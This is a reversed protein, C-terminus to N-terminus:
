HSRGLISHGGWDTDCYRCVSIIRVVPTIVVAKFLLLADFEGEFHRGIRWYVGDVKDELVQVIRDFRNFDHNTGIVTEMKTGTGVASRQCTTLEVAAEAVAL